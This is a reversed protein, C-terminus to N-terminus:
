EAADILAQLRARDQAYAEADAGTNANYEFTLTANPTYRAVGQAFRQWDIGGPMGTLIQRHSDESGSNDHIHYAKLRAGLIRQVEYMDFGEMHAHGTDIICNLRPNDTFLQLFQEQKFLAHGADPINEVLMAVGEQECIQQFKALREAVRSRLDACQQKTACPSVAANTHVVYHHCNLRHYMDFPETMLRFLEDENETQAFDCYGYPAHMCLDGTRGAMVRKMAELWYTTGGWEYFIEVGFDSPLKEMEDIHYLPYGLSSVTYKVM